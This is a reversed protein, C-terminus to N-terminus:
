HEGSGPKGAPRLSPSPKNLRPRAAREPAASGESIPKKEPRDFQLRVSSGETTSYSVHLRNNEESLALDHLSPIFRVEKQAFKVGAVLEEKTRPWRKHWAYFGLAGSYIEGGATNPSLGAVLSEAFPELMPPEPSLLPTTSRRGTPEAKM